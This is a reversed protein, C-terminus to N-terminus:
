DGWMEEVIGEPEVESKPVNEIICKMRNNSAKIQEVQTMLEDFKDETLLGKGKALSSTDEIEDLIEDIHNKIEAGNCEKRPM